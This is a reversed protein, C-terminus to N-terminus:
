KTVVRAIAPKYDVAIGFHAVGPQSEDISTPFPNSFHPDRQFRSIAYLMSQQGKGECQLALHVLGNDSFQPAVSMIRVETPLTGELRDLLESWSFAREALQANVFKTEKSLAVLDITSIQRTAADTRRREQRIQNEVSSIEDRTKKTDRQYRYYTDLNNLLLFATLLSIVVVVAYLPRYDRFPKAALNLHIPKM